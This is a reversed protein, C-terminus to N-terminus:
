WNDHADAPPFPCKGWQFSAFKELFDSILLKIGMSQNLEQM